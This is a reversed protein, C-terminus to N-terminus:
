RRSEEAAQQYLTVDRGPRGANHERSVFSMGIRVMVAESRTNESDCRALIRDLGLQDFGVALAHSAGETALGQGQMAPDLFWGVEISGRLADPEFAATLGIWGIFGGGKRDVAWLSCGRDSWLAGHWEIWTRTQAISTYPRGDDLFRMMEPQSQLAWLPDVDSERWQRLLLRDTETETVDPRPM